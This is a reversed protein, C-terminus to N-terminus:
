LFKGFQSARLTLLHRFLSLCKRPQHSLSSSSPLSCSWGDKCIWFLAGLVEFCADRSKLCLIFKQRMEHIGCLNRYFDQVLPDPSCPHHLRPIRPLHVQKEGDPVAVPLESFLWCLVSGRKDNRHHQKWLLWTGWTEQQTNSHLKM